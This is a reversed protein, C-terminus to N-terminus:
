GRCTIGGMAEVQPCPGAPLLGPLSRRLVHDPLEQVPESLNPSCTAARPSWSNGSCGSPTRNSVGSGGPSVSRGSHWTRNSLWKLSGLNPRLFSSAPGQVPDRQRCSALAWGPRSWDVPLPPSRSKLLLGRGSDPKACSRKAWRGFAWGRRLTIYPEHRLESLRVSSKGALPHRYHLVARLPERYLPLARIGGRGGEPAIPATLAFDM